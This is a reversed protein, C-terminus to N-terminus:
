EFQSFAGLHNLLAPVTTKNSNKAKVCTLIVFLTLDKRKKETKRGVGLTNRFMAVVSKWILRYMCIASM